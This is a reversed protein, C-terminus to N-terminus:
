PTEATVMRLDALARQYDAAAAVAKVAADAAYIERLNVVLIDSQGLELKRREARAVQEALAQARGALRATEAAALVQTHAAQVQAAIEDRLKRLKADVQGVKAQAERQKGREARLLLPVEVSLGLGLDLPRLSDKGSGLDKSVYAHADVRPSVQNDALRLSVAARERQARLMALEPRAREARSLAAALDPSEDGVPPPSAPLQARTPRIPAGDSARYYLSLEIASERLKRRGAIVKAQRDLVTRQNDVVEIPAESGAEAQRELGAQRGEATALLREAVSLSLGAAVWQWYAHAAANAMAMRTTTLQQDAVAVDREAVLIGARREDIPGNRWIPVRLDARMEGGSLTELDGDYVPFDGISRRWGVGVEAGWLPTAQEVGAMVQGKGYEGLPLGKVGLKVRPDFVGEARLLAGRVGRTVAEDHEIEPHTTRVSRLVEDLSLPARAGEAPAPRAPAGSEVAAPQASATRHLLGLAAVFVVAAAITRCSLTRRM